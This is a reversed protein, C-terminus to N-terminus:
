SENGHSMQTALTVERFKDDEQGQVFLQFCEKGYLNPNAALTDVIAQVVLSQETWNMAALYVNAELNKPGGAADHVAVFSSGKFNGLEALRKNLDELFLDSTLCPATLIYNDVRSM